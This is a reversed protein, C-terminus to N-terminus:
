KKFPYLRYVNTDLMNTPVANVLWNCAPVVDDIGLGQFERGLMFSVTYDNWDIGKGSAIEAARNCISWMEDETIYGVWFCWRALSVARCTDWAYTSTTRQVEAIDMKLEKAIRSQTKTWEPTNRQYQDFESSRKLMLLNNFVQKAETSNNIGWQNKLGYVITELRGKPLMDFVKEYRYCFLIAGFTLVRKQEETLPTNSYRKKFDELQEQKKKKNNLSLIYFYIGFIIIGAGIIYYITM